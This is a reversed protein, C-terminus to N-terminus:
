KVKKIEFVNEMQGDHVCIHKIFNESELYVIYVNLDREAIELAMNIKHDPYAGSVEHVLQRPMRDPFLYSMTRVRTGNKDYVVYNRIENETFSAVIVSQSVQWEVNKVKPFNKSFDVNARNGAKLAKMYVKKAKIESRAKALEDNGSENFIEFATKFSRPNLKVSPDIKVDLFSVSRDQAQAHLNIATTSIIMTVSLLMKLTRNM